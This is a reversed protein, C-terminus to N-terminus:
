TWHYWKQFCHLIFSHKGWGRRCTFSKSKEFMVELAGLGLSLFYVFVKVHKTLDV